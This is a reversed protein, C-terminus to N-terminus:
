SKFNMESSPSTKVKLTVHEGPVYIRVSIWSIELSQFKCEHRKSNFLLLTSGKSFYEGM